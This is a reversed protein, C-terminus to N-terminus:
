DDEDISSPPFLRTFVIALIITIFIYFCRLLIEILEIDHEFIFISIEEVFEWFVAIGALQWITFTEFVIM